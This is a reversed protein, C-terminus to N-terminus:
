WTSPYFTLIMVYKEDSIFEHIVGSKAKQFSSSEFWRKLKRQLEFIAGAISADTSIICDLSWMTTSKTFHVEIPGGAKEQTRVNLCQIKANWKRNLEQLLEPLLLSAGVGMKPPGSAECLITMDEKRAPM